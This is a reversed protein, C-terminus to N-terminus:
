YHKCTVIIFMGCFNVVVTSFTYNNKLMTDVCKVVIKRWRQVVAHIGALFLQEGQKAAV